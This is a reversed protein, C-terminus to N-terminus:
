SSMASSNGKAEDVNKLKEREAAKELEDAGCSSNFVVTSIRNVKALVIQGDVGRQMQMAGNARCGSKRCSPILTIRVAESDTVTIETINAFPCHPSQYERTVKGPKFERPQEQESGM